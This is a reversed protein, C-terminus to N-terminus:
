LFAKTRLKTPTKQSNNHEWYQEPVDIQIGGAFTPKRVCNNTTQDNSKHYRYKESKRSHRDNPNDRQRVM